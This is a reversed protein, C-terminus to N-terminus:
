KLAAGSISSIEKDYISLPCNQFIRLCCQGGGYEPGFAFDGSEM